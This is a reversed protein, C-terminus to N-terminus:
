CAKVRKQCIHLFNRKSCYNRIKNLYKDRCKSSIRMTQSYRRKRSQNIQIGNSTHGRKMTHSSIEWLKNGKFKSGKKMIIQSKVRSPLGEREKKRTNLIIMTIRTLKTLWWNSKHMLLTTVKIFSLSLIKLTFIKM